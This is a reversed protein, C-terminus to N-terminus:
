VGSRRRRRSGILWLGGMLIVAYLASGGCHSAPAVAAGSTGPVPISTSRIQIQTIGGVDVPGADLVMSSSIMFPVSAMWVGPGSTTNTPGSASNSDVLEFWVVYDGDPVLVTSGRAKLDWRLNYVPAHAVRTAGMMGDTDSGGSQNLWRMLYPRRVTSWDGITRVFAGGATEIWVALIHNPAYTGSASATQFDIYAVGPVPTNVTLVAAASDVSTPSANSVHCRFRAGNMNNGPIAQITTYSATNAGSGGAVNGWTAGNDTSILWQYFLPATGSAVLTFTATQGANVTM